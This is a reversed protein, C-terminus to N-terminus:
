ALKRKQRRKTVEASKAKLFAEAERGTLPMATKDVPPRSAKLKDVLQPEAARALITPIKLDDKQATSSALEGLRDYVAQVLEAKAEIVPDPQTIVDELVKAMVPKPRATPKPAALLRQRQKALKTLANTARVLRSHWRKTAAQNAELKATFDKKNM